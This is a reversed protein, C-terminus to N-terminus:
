EGGNQAGKTSEPAPVAAREILRKEAWARMRTWRAEPEETGYTGDDNEYAIERVMAEALGTLDAVDGPCEADPLQEPKVGRAKLVCGMACVEGEEDILVSSVLRKNPMADLAAIMERLFAQGRRGRIASRVAGRWRGAELEDDVEESYGHRSM